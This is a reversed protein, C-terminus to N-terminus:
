SNCTFATLKVYILTTAVGTLMSPLADVSEIPVHTLALGAVNAYVTFDVYVVTSTVRTAVSSGAYVQDIGVLTDADQGESAVVAM